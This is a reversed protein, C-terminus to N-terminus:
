DDCALIQACEACRLGEETPEDCVDCIKQPVRPILAMIRRAAENTGALAYGSEFCCEDIIGVIKNHLDDM